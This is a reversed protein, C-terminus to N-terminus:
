SSSTRTITSDNWVPNTCVRSLGSILINLNWAQFLAYTSFFGPFTRYNYYYYYDSKYLAMHLAESACM